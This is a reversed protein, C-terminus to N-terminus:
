KGVILRIFQRKGRQLLFIKGHKLELSGNPDLLAEGDIRLGNEKILRKAEGKSNVLGVEFFLRDFRIAGGGGMKKEDIDDPVEKNQVTKIFYEQAETAKKEGHYIKVIEYALKMKLDRPNAGNRIKKGIEDIEELSFHTCLTFYKEILSDSLSMIKGYMEEAKETLAIYNNLSKSMKDGGVLGELLPCTIVDQEPQNYRKQLQRGMLLNFKQDTGGIEVDAKLVVSDYGQMVPYLFEQLSLDQDKKIREKFDARQAVQAFTVKSALQVLETFNMKELWESNYRIEVKKMDLILEAQKVYTKMNDRVEEDTMPKRTASKGTPDGIRATFDGILFIVQHGLDQFQRLKRLPVAHGLHLVSGTPDIGFKIRLKKGALLKKELVKKIIIEETGRELLEKIKEKDTIIKSM